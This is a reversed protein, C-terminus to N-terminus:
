ISKLIGLNKRVINDLYIERLKIYLEDYVHHKIVCLAEMISQKSLKHLYGKIDFGNRHILIDRIDTYTKLKRNPNIDLGFVKKYLQKQLDSEYYSATRFHNLINKRKDCLKDHVANINKFRYFSDIYSEDSLIIACVYVKFFTDMITILNILFMNYLYTQHDEYLSSINNILLEIRNFAEITDCEITNEDYLIDPIKCLSVISIDPNYVEIYSETLGNVIKISYSTKCKCEHFFLKTSYNDFDDLTPVDFEKTNTIVGCNGCKMTISLRATGIGDFPYKM